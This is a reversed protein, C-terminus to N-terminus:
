ESAGLPLPVPRGDKNPFGESGLDKLVKRLAQQYVGKSVRKGVIWDCRNGRVYEDRDPAFEWYESGAPDTDTVTIWRRPRGEQGAVVENYEGIAVRYGPGVAVEHCEITPALVLDAAVHLLIELAELTPTRRDVPITVAEGHGCLSLFGDQQARVETRGHFTRDAVNTRSPDIGLGRYPSTWSWRRIRLLRWHPDFVLEGEEFEVPWYGEIRLGEGQVPMLTQTNAIIVHRGDRSATAVRIRRYGRYPPSASSQFEEVYCRDAFLLQRRRTDARIGTSMRRVTQWAAGTPPNPDSDPLRDTGCGILCLCALAATAPSRPRSV